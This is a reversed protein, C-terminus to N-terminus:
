MIYIDNATFNGTVTAITKITIKGGLGLGATMTANDIIAGFYLKGSAQTRAFILANANKSNTAILKNLAATLKTYNAVSVIPINKTGFKIPNGTTLGTVKTNLKTLMASAALIQKAVIMTGATNLVRVSKFSGAMGVFVKSALLGIYNGANANAVQFDIYLGDKGTAFDTIKDATRFDDFIISDKGDGGTITDAGPGGRIIDDGKGANITDAGQGGIIINNGTNGTINFGETQSGLKVNINGSGTLVINEVNQLQNDFIPAYNAGVKLTDVGSSGIFKAPINGTGLGADVTVGGKNGSADYTIKGAINALAVSGDGLIKVTALNAGTQGVTVGKNTGVATLDLETVKTADAANAAWLNLKSNSDLTVAIKSGTDPQLIITNPNNNNVFDLSQTSLYTIMRTTTAAWREVVINKLDTYITTDIGATAAILDLTEISKMQPMVGNYAYYKFTDNGGSGNISDAVQVTPSLWNSNDGIFVDDYATGTLTDISTTLVFTKGQNQNFIADGPDAISKVDNLVNAQLPPNAADIFNLKSAIDSADTNGAYTAMFKTGTTPDDDPIGDKNPDIYEWFWNAYQLKNNLSAYDSGSSVSLVSVLVDAVTKGAFAGKEADSANRHFAFNYIRDIAANLDPSGFRSQAESSNVFASILDKVAQSDPASNDPLQSAWYRLGGPDAPRGYFAIYLKQVLDVNTSWSM